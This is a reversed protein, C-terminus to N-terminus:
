RLMSTPAVTVLVWLGICTVCVTCSVILVLWLVKRVLCTGPCWKVEVDSGTLFSMFYIVSGGFGCGVASWCGCARVWDVVEYMVEFVDCVGSSSGEAVALCM